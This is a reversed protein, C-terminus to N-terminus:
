CLGLTEVGEAEDVLVDQGGGARGLGVVGFDVVALAEPLDLGCGGGDVAL